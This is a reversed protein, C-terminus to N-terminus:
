LVSEEGNMLYNDIISDSIEGHGHVHYVYGTYCPLCDIGDPMDDCYCDHILIRIMTDSTLIIFNGDSVIQIIDDRIKM